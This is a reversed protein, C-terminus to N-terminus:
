ALGLYARRAALLPNPACPLCVQGVPPRWQGQPNRKDELESRHMNHLRKTETTVYTACPDQLPYTKLWEKCAELRWNSTSRPKKLIPLVTSPLIKGRRQCEKRYQDLNPKTDKRAMSSWPEEGINIECPLGTSMCVLTTLKRNNEVYYKESPSKEVEEEDEDEADLLAQSDLTEQTEETLTQNVPAADSLDQLDTM